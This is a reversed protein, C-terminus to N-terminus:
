EEEDRNPCHKAYHPEGCYKCLGLTSLLRNIRRENENVKGVTVESFSSISMIGDWDDLLATTRADVKISRNHITLLRDNIKILEPNNSAFPDLERIVERVESQLVEKRGQVDGVLKTLREIEQEMKDIRTQQAHEKKMAKIIWERMKKDNGSQAYANTSNVLVGTKKDHTLGRHEECTVVRGMTSKTRFPKNCRFGDPMVYTCRKTINVM